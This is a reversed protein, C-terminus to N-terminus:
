VIRLPDSWAAFGNQEKCWSLRLSFFVLQLITTEWTVSYGGPPMRLGRIISRGRRPGDTFIRYAEATIFESVESTLDNLLWSFSFM